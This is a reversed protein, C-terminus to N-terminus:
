SATVAGCRSTKPTSRGAPSESTAVGLRMGEAGDRIGSFYMYYRGDAQIVGPAWFDRTTDSWEPKEPMADPLLEWDVLDRSRAVPIYALREYTLHETSYAYYFGASAKIVHPDAFDWRIVPNKYVTRQTMGPLAARVSPIALLGVALLLALVALPVVTRWRAMTIRWPGSRTQPRILDERSLGSMIVLTEGREVYLYRKERVMGWWADDAEEVEAPEDELQPDVDVHAQRVLLGNGYEDAHPRSRDRPIGRETLEPKAGGPVYTPEFTDTLALEAAKRWGSVRQERPLDSDAPLTNEPSALAVVLLCVEATVLLLLAIRLARV